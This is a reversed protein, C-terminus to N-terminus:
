RISGNLSTCLIQSDDRHFSVSTISAFEAEYQSSVGKFSCFRQKTLMDWVSVAGLASGTVLMTGRHSFGLCVVSSEMSMPEQESATTDGILQGNLDWTEIFGDATGVVISQGDPTFQACEVLMKTTYKVTKFLVSTIMDMEAPAVNRAVNRLLDYSTADKSILGREKQWTLAQAILTLLRSPPILVIEKELRELLAQISM